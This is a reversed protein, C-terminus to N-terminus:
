WSRHAVQHHTTTAYSPTVIGRGPPTVRRGYEGGRRKRGMRRWMTWSSITRMSGYLRRCIWGAKSTSAERRERDCREHRLLLCRPGYSWRQYHIRFPSWHRFALFPSPHRPQNRQQHTRSTTLPTTICRAAPSSVITHHSHSQADELKRRAPM